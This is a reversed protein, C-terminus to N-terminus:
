FRCKWNIFAANKYRFVKIFTKRLRYMRYMGYFANPCKTITLCLYFMNMNINHVVGTTVQTCSVEYGGFSSTWNTWNIAFFLPLFILVILNSRFFDRADNGQLHYKTQYKIWHQSMWRYVDLWQIYMKM